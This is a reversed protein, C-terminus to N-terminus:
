GNSTVFGKKELEGLIDSIIIPSYKTKRSISEIDIVRLKSDKKINEKM